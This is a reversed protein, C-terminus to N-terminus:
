SQGRTSSWSDYASPASQGVVDITLESSRNLHQDLASKDWRRIRGYPLSPPFTGIAVLRSFHGPSVGVYSAAEKRNFVRREPLPLAHILAVTLEM